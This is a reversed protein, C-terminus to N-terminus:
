NMGKLFDYIQLDTNNIKNEIEEINTLYEVVPKTPKVMDFELNLIDEISMNKLDEMKINKM